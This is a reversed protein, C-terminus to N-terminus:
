PLVLADNITYMDVKTRFIDTTVAGTGLFKGLDSVLGRVYTGSSCTIKFRATLFSKKQCTGFFSTWKEQIEEQRFHGEVMNISTTVKRSFSEKSIQGFGLFLFEEILIERKPITIEHLLNRKAWWHLPKGEVAKSSYPPYSQTQKGVKQQIFLAINEPTVTEILSLNGGTPIGLMDYSDTEVGFVLEFEYEKALHLYSDRQKNEEGIMLLLVGHALPDLRGAYGIKENAYEPYIKKLQQILQYPTLYLPKYVSLIKKM